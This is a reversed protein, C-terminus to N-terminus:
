SLSTGDADAGPGAVEGSDPYRNRRRASQGQRQANRGQADGHGLSRGMAQGSGAADHDRRPALLHDPLIEAGARRIIRPAPRLLSRKWKM